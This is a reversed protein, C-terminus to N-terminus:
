DEKIIIVRVKDGLRHKPLRDKEFVIFDNEPYVPSFTFNGEVADKMMQQKRMDAGTKFFHECIEVVDHASLSEFGQYYERVKEIEVELKNNIFDSM